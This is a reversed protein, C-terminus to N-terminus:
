VDSLLILLISLTGNTSEITMLRKTPKLLAMIRKMTDEPILKTSPTILTGFRACPDRYM